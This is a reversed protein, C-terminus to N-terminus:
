QDSLAFNGEDCLELSLKNVDITEDENWLDASLDVATQEAAEAAAADTEEDYAAEAVPSAKEGQRLSDCHEQVEAVQEEPVAKGGIRHEQEQAWTGVPLLLLAAAGLASATKMSM